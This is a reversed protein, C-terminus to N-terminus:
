SQKANPQKKMTLYNAPITSKIIEREVQYHPSVMEVLAENFKDQINQHLESYIIAMNDPQNTYANIQYSVYFDDLSTQLVFPKHQDDDLINTTSLAANILLEYVQKWPVDYGITVSTHLILGLEKASTTYNITHGSLMSSNAITIDENKITRIRTVLLTREIVDGMLDGIKIRDGIKFPRMYTIVFGAMANSITSSSGISVLVGVFISVGRFIPSDSGPLYPFIIIFSFMYLLFRAINFTPKAWEPYFGPLTLEGNEMESAIFRLFRVAYHVIALIVFITFLNPLYNTLGIWALKLPTAVWGILTESISRTWPFVSFLLPLTFYLALVVISLKITKILFLIIELQRESNLLQHGKFKVGKLTHGKLVTIKERIKKFLRNNVRIIVYAGALILIIAGVRLTINLVSNASREDSISKSIKDKYLTALEQPEKALLAADAENVSMVVLDNYVIEATTETKNIALSDPKFEFDDYLQQIKGTIAKARDSASFSGVKTYVFFLTDSFPVVSFGTTKKSALSDNVQGLLYGPLIILLFLTTLNKM